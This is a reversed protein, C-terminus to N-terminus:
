AWRLMFMTADDETAFCVRDIRKSWPKAPMVIANWDNLAVNVAVPSFGDFFGIKHEKKFNSWWGPETKDNYIIKLVVHSM